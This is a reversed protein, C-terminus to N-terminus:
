DASKLSLRTKSLVELMKGTEQNHLPKMNSKWHLGKSNSQKPRLGGRRRGGTSLSLAHHARRCDFPLLGTLNRMRRCAWDNSHELRVSQLCVREDPESASQGPPRIARRRGLERSEAKESIKAISIEHMWTPMGWM